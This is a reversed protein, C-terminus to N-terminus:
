LDVAHLHSAVTPAVAGEGAAVVRRTTRESGPYGMAVLKEHVVDARVRGDSWYVWERVKDVFPETVTPRAGVGSPDLGAARAAVFRAVTHHSCGALEAADRFSGTLDFGALIEM